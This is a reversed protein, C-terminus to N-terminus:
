KTLKGIIYQYIEQSRDKDEWASCMKAAIKRDPTAINVEILTSDGEKVQCHVVYDGNSVRYYDAVTGVENRLEYKNNMLFMDVDDIISGPIRNEFFKLSERGESTLHYYSTNRNVNLFVFDDEILETIAKQVNFYNTYEEDLFFQAIQTNTLPFEVKNLMYMIILKYLTDASLAM